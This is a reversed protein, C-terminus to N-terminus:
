EKDSADSFAAAFFADRGKKKTASGMIVPYETEATISDLAKKTDKQNLKDTKNVWVILSENLEGALHMVDRDFDTVGVKADLVLVLLREEVNGDRLYWMILKALKERAKKSMKAYGYGPLDVFYYKENIKFFNIEQTKGPKSSSRVLNKRNILMNITSSKGVNSRGLFAIQPVGDETIPNTGKIGMM